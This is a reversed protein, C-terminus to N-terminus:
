FKFYRTLSRCFIWIIYIFRYGLARASNQQCSWQYQLHVSNFYHEISQCLYNTGDNKSQHISNDHDKGKNKMFKHVSCGKQLHASQASFLLLTVFWEYMIHWNTVQCEQLVNSFAGGNFICLMSVSIKQNAYSALPM